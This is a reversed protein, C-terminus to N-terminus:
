RRRAAARCRCRCRRASTCRRRSGATRSACRTSCCRRCSRSPSACTRASSLSLKGDAYHVHAIGEIGPLSVPIDAGATVTINHGDWTITAQVSAQLGAIEITGNITAAFTYGTPGAHLEATMRAQGSAMGNPVSVTAGGSISADIGGAPSSAVTVVFDTAQM